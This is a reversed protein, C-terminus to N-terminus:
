SKLSGVLPLWGMGDLVDNKMHTIIPRKQLIYDRKFPEKAFSVYLKFSGVLRLWGMGGFVHLIGGISVGVGGCALLYVCLCVARGLSLFCHREQRLEWPVWARVSM